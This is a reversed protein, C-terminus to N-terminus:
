AIMSLVFERAEDISPTIFHSREDDVRILDHPRQRLPATVLYRGETYIACPKTRTIRIGAQTMKANIDTM